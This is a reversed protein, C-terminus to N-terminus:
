TTLRATLRQRNVPWEATLMSFVASDRITGDAAPMDARLVGDLRLGLREIAARSRRNRADTKIRVGWVQWTEFAYGMMLLKAETNIPTRQALPDLWTYGISALDPRDHRQLFGSGPSRTSWDWPTLDYFRTSGVIRQMVASFTTFPVQEGALRKEVAKEIYEVMADRDAPVPTHEFTSRDRCAAELLGDVHEIQMPLLHVFRGRLAFPEFM